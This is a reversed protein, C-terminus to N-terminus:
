ASVEMRNSVAISQVRRIERTVEAVTLDKGGSRKYVQTRGEPLTLFTRLYKYFQATYSLEVVILEGVGALYQEFAKKPFPYIV